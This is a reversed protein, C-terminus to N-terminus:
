YKIECVVAQDCVLSRNTSRHGAQQYVYKYIELYMFKVCLYSVSTSCATAKMM